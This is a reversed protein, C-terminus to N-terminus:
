SIVMHGVRPTSCHKGVKEPNRCGPIYNPAGLPSRM